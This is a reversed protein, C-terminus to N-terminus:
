WDTDGYRGGGRSGDLRWRERWVKRWREAMERAMGEAVERSDSPWRELRVMRGGDIGSYGGSEQGGDIGGDSRRRERM